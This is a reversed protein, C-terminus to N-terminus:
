GGSRRNYIPEHVRHAFEYQEIDIARQNQGSTGANARHIARAFLKYTMRMREFPNRNRSPRISDDECVDHCACSMRQVVTQEVLEPIPVNFVEASLDLAGAAQM